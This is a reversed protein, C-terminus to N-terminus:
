LIAELGKIQDRKTTAPSFVIGASVIIKEKKIYTKLIFPGGMFGNKLVWLGRYTNGELYPPYSPEIIVYKNKKNGYLNNSFVSDTKKVVQEFLSTNKKKNFSFILIQRIIEKERPNYTAWFLMTDNQNVFYEEPLIIEIDFNNKIKNKEISNVNKLAEKRINNIENFDFINKIKKLAFQM